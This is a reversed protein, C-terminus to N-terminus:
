LRSWFGLQISGPWSNTFKSLTRDREGNPKFLFWFDIFFPFSSTCRDALHGQFLHFSTTQMCLFLIIHINSVGIWVLTRQWSGDLSFTYPRRPHVQSLKLCRLVVLHSDCIIGNPLSPYLRPFHWTRELNKPSNCLMCCAMDTWFAWSM